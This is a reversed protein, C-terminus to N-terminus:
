FHPLAFQWCSDACNYSLFEAGMARCRRRLRAEFVAADAADDIRKCILSVQSSRNLGTGAAPKTTPCGDGFAILEGRRLRLIRTINDLVQVSEVCTSGPFFVSGVGPRHVTLDCVIVSGSGSSCSISPSPSPLPSPSSSRSLGPSSQLSPVAVKFSVHADNGLGDQDSPDVPVTRFQQALVPSKPSGPFTFFLPGPRANASSSSSSTSAPTMPLQIYSGADDSAEGYDEDESFIGEQFTGSRQTDDDDDRAAGDDLSYDTQMPLPSHPMLIAELERGRQEQRQQQQQQRWHGNAHVQAYLSRVNERRQLALRKGEPAVLRKMAKKPRLPSPRLLGQPALFPSPM